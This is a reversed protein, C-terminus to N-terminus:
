QNKQEKARKAMFAARVKKAKEPDMKALNADMDADGTPEIAIKDQGGGKANTANTSTSGSKGSSTKKPKEPVYVVEPVFASTALPAQPLMFLCNKTCDRVCSGCQVCSYHNISWTRAGKDIKISDCPCRKVCIGCLGCLSPDLAVVGKLGAPPNKKQTPYLLTEPKKFLSGFTMKGLKFSGM